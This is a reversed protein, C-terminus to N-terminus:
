WDIETGTPHLMFYKLTWILKDSFNVNISTPILINNSWM